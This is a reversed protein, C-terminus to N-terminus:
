DCLQGIRRDIDAIAVPIRAREDDSIPETSEGAQRKVLQERTARLEACEAAKIQAIREDEASVSPAAADAKAPDATDEAAQAPPPPPKPGSILTAGPPPPTDSFHLSGQADKWKYIAKGASVTTTAGALALLVCSAILGARM